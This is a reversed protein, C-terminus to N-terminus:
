SRMGGLRLLADGFRWLRLRALTALAAMREQAGNLAPSRLIRPAHAAISLPLLATHGAWRARGGPSLMELQHLEANIRRWKKKLASWDARAPHSVAADEAYGIRYGAAIARLCWDVDESMGNRFPGTVDFVLRACFLNATVSFHKKLVYTRNDFAYVAEFAEAGSKRGDGEILVIMRGGVLDSRGLAAVGKELWAPDAICDADIFALVEGTSAAVAANRAPGAGRESAFVLRARGAIRAVVAAEGEPSLNDAVVIEFADRPYTQGGLSALCRGLRDLDHYHPVIVSVSPLVSVREPARCDM